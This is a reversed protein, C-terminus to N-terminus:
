KTRHKKILLIAIVLAATVSGIAIILNVITPPKNILLKKDDTQDETTNPTTAIDTVPNTVTATSEDSNNTNNNLNDSNNTSTDGSGQNYNLDSYDGASYSGPVFSVACVNKTPILGFMVFLILLVSYIFITIPESRVTSGSTNLTM